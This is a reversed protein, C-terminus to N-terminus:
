PWYSTPADIQVATEQEACFVSPSLSARLDRHARVFQVTSQEAAEPRSFRSTALGAKLVRSERTQGGFLRLVGLTLCGGHGGHGGHSAEKPNRIRSPDFRKILIAKDSSFLSILSARLVRHARLLQLRGVINTSTVGKFLPHGQYKM